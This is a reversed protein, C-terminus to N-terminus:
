KQNVVKIQGCAGDDLLHSMFQGDDQWNKKVKVWVYLNVPTGLRKAIDVQAQQRIRKITQGGRGIVIKKHSQRSIMITARILAKDGQSRDHTQSNGAHKSKAQSPKSSSDPYADTETGMLRFEDIIVMLGYPLEKNLSRTLKERIIEACFFRDNRDSLQDSEYMAPQTPLHQKLYHKLEQIGQRKTASIPIFDVAQPLETLKETLRDLYPLIDLKSDLLDIKNVAVVLTSRQCQPQHHLATAIAKSVQRDEEVFRRGDVLWLMVDVETLTNVVAANLMQNLLTSRKMPKASTNLGPTHLGPTHLGPTDIFIYQCDPETLIGKIAHRTTQPKHSIISVKEGMLQNILTSKGVNPRGVIAITGCAFPRKTVM